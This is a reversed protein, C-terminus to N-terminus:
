FDSVLWRGARRELRVDSQVAGSVLDSTSKATVTATAHGGAVKVMTVTADANGPAKAASYIDAARTRCTGAVSHTRLNITIARRLEPTMTACARAHDKRDFASLFELVRQTALREDGTRSAPARHAAPTGAADGCAGSALALAAGVVALQSSGACSRADFHHSRHFM